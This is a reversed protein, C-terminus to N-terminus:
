TNLICFKFNYVLVFKIVHTIQLGQFLAKVKVGMDGKVINEGVKMM